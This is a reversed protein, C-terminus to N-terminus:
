PRSHTCKRTFEGRPDSLPALNPSRVEELILALMATAVSDVPITPPLMPKDKQSQKAIIRKTFTTEQRRGAQVAVNPKVPRRIVVKEYTAGQAGFNWMDM